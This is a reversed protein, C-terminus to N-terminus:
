ILHLSVQGITKNETGSCPHLFVALIVRRIVNWKLSDMREILLSSLLQLSVFPVVVFVVFLTFPV